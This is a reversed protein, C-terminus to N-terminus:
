VVFCQWPLRRCWKFIFRRARREQLRHHAAGHAAAPHEEPPAEASSCAALLLIAHLKLIRTTTRYISQMPRTVRAAFLWASFALKYPVLWVLRNAGWLSPPQASHFACNTRLAPGSLTCGTESHGTTLTALDRVLAHRQAEDATESSPSGCAIRTKEIWRCPRAHVDIWLRVEPKCVHARADTHPSTRFYYRCRTVTWRRGADARAADALPRILFFRAESCSARRV